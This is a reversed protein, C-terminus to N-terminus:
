NGNGGFGVPCCVLSPDTGAKLWVLDTGSPGFRLDSVESPCSWTEGSGDGVREDATKDFARGGIERTSEDLEARETDEVGETRSARLRPRNLLLALDDVNSETVFM